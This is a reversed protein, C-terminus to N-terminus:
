KLCFFGCKFFNDLKKEEPKSKQTTTAINDGVAKTTTEYNNEGEGNEDIGHMHYLIKRLREQKIYDEADDDIETM